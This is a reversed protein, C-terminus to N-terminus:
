TVDEGSSGLSLGRYGGLSVPQTGTGTQVPKQCVPFRKSGSIIWGAADAPEM